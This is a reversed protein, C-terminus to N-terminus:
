KVAPQAVPASDALEKLAMARLKKERALLDEREKTLKKLEAELKGLRESTPGNKEVEKDIRARADIEQVDLRDFQALLARLEKVTKKADGQYCRELFGYMVEWLETQTQDGPLPAKNGGDPDCFFLHPILEDPKSRQFLVHLPHKDDLVNTPLKVCRFWRTLLLTQENDLERNLLAHDTGKCKECERLVLLPRKDGANTLQWAEAAPLAHEIQPVVTTGPADPQEKEAPKWLPYNWEIQLLNHSTKGRPTITIGGHHGSSPGGM